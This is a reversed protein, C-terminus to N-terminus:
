RRCNLAFVRRSLGIRDLAQLLESFRPHDPRILRKRENGDTEEFFDVKFLYSLAKNPTETVPAAVVPRYVEPNKPMIATLMKRLTVPDRDYTMLHSDQQWYQSSSGRV